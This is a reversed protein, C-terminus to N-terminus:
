VLADLFLHNIQFSLCSLRVSDEQSELMSDLWNPRRGGVLAKNKRNRLVSNWTASAMQVDDHNNDVKAAVHLLLGRIAAPWHNLLSRELGCIQQIIAGCFQLCWHHSAQQESHIPPQYYYTIFALRGWWSWWQWPRRVYM